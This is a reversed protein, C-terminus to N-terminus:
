VSAAKKQREKQIIKYLFVFLSSFICAAGLLSYMDLDSGLICVDLFISYIIGFYQIIAVKGPNGLIYAKNRCMQGTFTFVGLLLLIALERFGFSNFGQYMALFPSFISAIAAFYLTVIGENTKAGITKVLVQTTAVFITGTLCAIAGFFKQSSEARKGEELPFLFEPKAM